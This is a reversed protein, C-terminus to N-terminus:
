VTELATKIDAFTDYLLGGYNNESIFQHIRLEMIITRLNRSFDDNEWGMEVRLDKYILVNLISMDIMLFSGAPIQNSEIVRQGLISGNKLELQLLVYEDQTTKTLIMKAYDVPNMFVHTPAFNLTALQTRAAILADFNNANNVSANLSTITYQPAQPVIGNLNPAVNDGNLMNDDLELRLKRGGITRIQDEIFPIDDLMEESIKFRIAIKRATSEVTELDFDALPKLAGEATMAADGEGAVENVFIIRSSNTRGVNAYDMILPQNTRIPIVSTRVEPVPLFSSGSVNTTTMMTGAAKITFEFPKSKNKFKAYEEKKEIFAKEVDSKVEGTAGDAKLKSLITGQERIKEDLEKFMAESAMKVQVDKGDAGKITVGDETMSKYMAERVTNLKEMFKEGNLESKFYEAMVDDCTKIFAEDAEDLDKNKKKIASLLGINAIVVGTTQPRKVAGIGLLLFGALAISMKIRKM